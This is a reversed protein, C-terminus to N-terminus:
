VAVARPVGRGAGPRRRRRSLGTRVAARDRRRARDGRRYRDAAAPAPVTTGPDALVEHSDPPQSSRGPMGAPTGLLPQADARGRPPVCSWSVGFARLYGGGYAVTGGNRIEM